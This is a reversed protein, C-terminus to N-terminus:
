VLFFKSRVLFDQRDALGNLGGNVKMTVARVDDLDAVANLSHRKWFWCAVDIALTVDRAIMSPNAGDIFNFPSVPDRKGDRQGRKKDVHHEDDIHRM